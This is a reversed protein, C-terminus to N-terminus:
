PLALGAQEHLTAVIQYRCKNVNGPRAITIATIHAVRRGTINNIGTGLYFSGRGAPGPSASLTGNNALSDWARNGTSTESLADLTEGSHNAFGIDAHQTAETSDCFVSVTGFGPVELVNQTEEDALEGRTFIMRQDPDGQVFGRSDRGDLQDADPAKDIDPATSNVFRSNSESQTYYGSLNPSTGPTGQEGQPGQAGPTGAPGAPGRIGAQNWAVATETRKNCKQKAKLLRLVGTKKNACASITGGSQAGVLSTAAVAGGGLALFLALASAANAFTLRPRLHQLM